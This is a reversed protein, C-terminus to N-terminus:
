LNIAWACVYINGVHCGLQSLSTWGGIVCCWLDDGRFPGTGIHMSLAIVSYLVGNSRLPRQAFVLVSQATSIVWVYMVKILLLSRKFLHNKGLLQDTEELLAVTSMDGVQNAGIDVAVQRVLTVLVCLVAPAVFDAVKPRNWADHSCWWVFVKVTCSWATHGVGTLRM